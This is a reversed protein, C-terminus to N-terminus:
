EREIFLGVQRLLRRAQELRYKEAAISDDWEFAAHLPSDEPRAEDVVASPTLIGSRKVAMCKLETIVEEEDKDALGYKM